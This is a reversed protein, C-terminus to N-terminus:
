YEDVCACTDLPALGDTRVASIVFWKCCWLDPRAKRGRGELVCGTYSVQEDRYRFHGSCIRVLAIGLLEQALLKVFTSKSLASWCLASIKFHSSKLVKYIALLIKQELM